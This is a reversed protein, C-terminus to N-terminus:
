PQGTHRALLGLITTITKGTGPEDTILVKGVTKILRAGQVQYPRPTLGKPLAQQVDLLGFDIGSTDTRRVTEDRIWAVLRPGPRWRSGYTFALQVVAPWSVPLVLGGPPDTLKVLPTLLAVERERLAHVTGHSPVLIVSRGDASLEGLVDPRM